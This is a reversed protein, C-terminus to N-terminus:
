DRIAASASVQRLIDRAALRPIETLRELFVASTSEGQLASDLYPDDPGKHSARWHLIAVTTSLRTKILDFLLDVESKQLPTVSCYGAVFQAIHQLPDGDLSRHYAAGVAVDIILPGHIMDGFDIIGAVQDSDEDAVLANGPNLDNHIVQARLGGLQPQVEAEFIDLTTAVERRVSSDDVFKLLARLELAHTMDWILTHHSGPHVFDKLARGLAALERGLNYRFASSCHMGDFLKGPLYSVMRVFYRASGGSIEFGTEGQLGRIIRPVKLEPDVKEIHLLAEVQFRTVSIDEEPNAIKLVYRHGDGATVLFNQDRESVLTAVTASFGYREHILAIVFDDSFAPPESTMVEFLGPNINEMM